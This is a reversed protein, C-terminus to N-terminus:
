AARAKASGAGEAGVAKVDRILDDIEDARGGGFVLLSVVLVSVARM